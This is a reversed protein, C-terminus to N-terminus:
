VRPRTGAKASAGNPLTTGVKLTAIAGQTKDYTASSILLSGRKLFQQDASAPTAHALGFLAVGLLATGSREHLAL